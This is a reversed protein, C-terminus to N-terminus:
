SLPDAFVFSYLNIGGAEQIPNRTVWRQLNPAYFASATQTLCLVAFLVSVILAGRKKNRM